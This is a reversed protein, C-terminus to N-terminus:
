SGIQIDRGSFRRRQAEVIGLKWTSLENILGTNCSSTQVNLMSNSRSTRRSLSKTGNIKGDGLSPTPIYQKFFSHFHNIEEPHLQSIKLWEVMSLFIRFNKRIKQLFLTYESCSILYPFCSTFIALSEVWGPIVVTLM